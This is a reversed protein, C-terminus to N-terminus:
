LDSFRSIFPLRMIPAPFKGSEEKNEIQAQATSCKSETDPSKISNEERIVNNMKMCYNISKQLELTEKQAQIERIQKEQLLRQNYLCTPYMVVLTMVSMLAVVLNFSGMICYDVLLIICFITTAVALPQFPNESKFLKKFLNKIYM